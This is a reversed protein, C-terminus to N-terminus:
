ETTSLCKVKREISSLVDQIIPKMFVSSNYDIYYDYLGDNETSESSYSITIINKSYEEFACTKRIHNVIEDGGNLVISSDVFRPLNKDVFVVTIDEKSMIERLKKMGGNIFKAEYFECEFFGEISRKVDDIKQQYDDIVLVKYKM